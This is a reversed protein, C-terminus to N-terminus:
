ARSNVSRLFHGLLGMETLQICCPRSACQDITKSKLDYVIMRNELQRDGEMKAGNGDSIPSPTSQGSAEGSADMMTPPIAMYDMGVTVLRTMDPTVAMDTVRIPVGSWDDRLKGALDEFLLSVSKYMSQPVACVWSYIKRDLSASMFGSGDPLWVLASVTESHSDLTHM